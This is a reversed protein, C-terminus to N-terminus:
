NLGRDILHPGYKRDETLIHNIIWDKLFNVISMDMRMQGAAYKSKLEQVEQILRMHHKIHIEHEPFDYDEM